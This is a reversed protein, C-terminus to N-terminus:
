RSWRRDARVIAQTLTEEDDWDVVRIGSTRLDNLRNSREIRAFQHGATDESTPDPSVVTVPHGRVQLSRAVYEAVRDAVPSLFLIQAEDHLRTQLTRLATRVLFRGEPPTPSLAEHTALLHRAKARHTPGASPALWVDHPSLAAIGVRDGSDLLSHFLRGAADIERDIAHLEGSASQLYAEERLDLLVVVTAMREERFELTALEGDRAFRNWDLRSLPDGSRFERLSAFEVGEGTTQTSVRGTYPSTQPRLPVTTTTDLSPTCAFRTATTELEQEREVSGDISRAVVTLGDFTFEGRRALVDYSFTARAGPRLSTATRPTGGVVELADPVEDLMRLDTLTAEGTNEVVVTVTVEDGPDPDPDAIRHAVALTPSPADLLNAYALYGVVVTVGLLLPRSELVVGLGAAAFALAGIGTWHTTERRTESRIRTPAVPTEDPPTGAAADADSGERAAGSSPPEDDVGVDGRVSAGDTSTEADAPRASRRAAGDESM